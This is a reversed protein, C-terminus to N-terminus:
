REVHIHKEIERKWGSEIFSFKTFGMKESFWMMFLGQLREKQSEFEHSTPKSAM